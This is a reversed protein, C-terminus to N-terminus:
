NKKYTDFENGWRCQLPSTDFPTFLEFILM